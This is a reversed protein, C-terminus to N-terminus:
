CQDWVYMLFYENRTHPRETVITATVGDNRKIDYGGSVTTPHFDTYCFRQVPDTLEEFPIGNLLDDYRVEERLVISVSRFKLDSSIWHKLFLNMDMNTLKSEAVYLVSHKISLLNDLSFWNSQYLVLSWGEFKLNTKFSSSAKFKIFVRKSLNIKSLLYEAATDSIEDLWIIYQKLRKKTVWEMISVQSEMPCVLDGIGVSKSSKIIFKVKEEESNLVSVSEEEDLEVIIALDNRRIRFAKIWGCSRKSCMSLMTIELLPFMKMIESIAVTPLRFLTFQDMQFSTSSSTSSM